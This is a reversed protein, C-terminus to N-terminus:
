HPWRKSCNSNRDLFSARSIISSQKV